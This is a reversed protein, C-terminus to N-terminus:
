QKYKTYKEVYKPKTKPDSYASESGQQDQVSVKTVTMKSAKVFLYIISLYILLSYRNALKHSTKDTHEHTQRDALMDGSSCTWDEYFTNLVDDLQRLFYVYQRRHVRTVRQRVRM